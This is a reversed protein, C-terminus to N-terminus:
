THDALCDAFREDFGCYESSAVSLAFLLGITLEAAFPGLRDNAWVLSRQVPPGRLAFIVVPDFELLGRL